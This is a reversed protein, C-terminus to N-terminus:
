RSEPNDSEGAPLPSQISVITPDNRDEVLYRAMRWELKETDLSELYERMVAEQTEKSLFPPVSLSITTREVIVMEREITARIHKM